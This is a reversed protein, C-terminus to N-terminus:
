LQTKKGTTDIKYYTGNSYYLGQSNGKSHKTDIDIIRNDYFTSVEDVVSHGIVVAEANYLMLTTNVQQQTAEANAYGRYWFPGDSGFLLKLRDGFRANRQEKSSYYYPRCLENIEALSMSLQNVNESIGGHTFIVNGIQEIINKSALWRGLETNPKFWQKYDVKLLEANKLYKGNVYRIDDQMNMIEHNGLIFHVKGGMTKAEQELHYILWLVETVNEGRDFFDGILVLHGTRFTWEYLENMVNNAILIKRFAGFEGEIDSICILSDSEPYTTPEIIITDKLKTQFNWEPHYEFNCNVRISDKLTYTNSIVKHGTEAKVISKVTIAGNQYFIHPADTGIKAHKMKAEMKYSSSAVVTGPLVYWHTVLDNSILLYGLGINAIFLIFAALLIKLIAKFRM